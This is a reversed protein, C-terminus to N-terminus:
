ADTAVDRWLWAEDDWVRGDPRGGVGVFPLYPPDAIALRSM